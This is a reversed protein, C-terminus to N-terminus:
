SPVIKTKPKKASDCNKKERKRKTLNPKRLFWFIVGCSCVSCFFLLLFNNNKCAIVIAVVIFLSSCCTQCDTTTTKWSTKTDKKRKKKKKKNCFKQFEWFNDNNEVFSPHFRNYTLSYNQLMKRKFNMTVKIDFEYM